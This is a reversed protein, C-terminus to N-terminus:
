ARSRPSVGSTSGGGRGSGTLTGAYPRARGLATRTRFQRPICSTRSSSSAPSRHAPEPALLVRERRGRRRADAPRPPEGRARSTRRRVRLVRARRARSRARPRRAMVHHVVAPGCTGLVDHGGAADVMEPVWHGAAFPPDSWECVFVERRALGAVARRVAALRRQMEDVIARGREAVGLRVALELVSDGIEDITHPDLSIVEAELSGLRGVDASSVACVACLDQTVVIDPALAEIQREDLVYLSDGTRLAARVGDDIARASLATSDVRSRTVVPLARVAPPWDCEESVGVLSDALGLDAVIETASPLLSCIRIGM